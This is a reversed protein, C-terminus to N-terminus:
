LAHCPVHQQHHGPTPAAPDGAGDIEDAGIGQEAAVPARDLMMRKQMELDAIVLRDLKRNPAAQFGDLRARLALVLQRAAIQRLGGIRRMVDGVGVQASRYRVIELAFAGIHRLGRAFEDVSRRKAFCILDRIRNAFGTAVKASYAGLRRSWSYIGPSAM